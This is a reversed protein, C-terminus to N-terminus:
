EMGYFVRCAKMTMYCDLKAVIEWPAHMSLVPVGADLTDINRQAMYKAVTGGGGADVKGMECTQWCVGGRSFARRFRAVVEASADSAGSKGRAGTYKCLAVGYNLRASNRRDFVDGYTPDYAAAVDASLCISGAMCRRASVGQAACLDEILLEFAQSQIGTVGDSGIEEKDALICLSTHAPVEATHLLPYLAAYACVRDDHGYAGIMSRDLGVDRAKGAPVLTLEASLLDEEVIGYREHLMQMAALKIRQSDGDDGDLPRSGVLINLNEGTIGDGLTKKLQEQSLHVLLDTVCFVPDAPDEGISVNVVSGDTLARVGHLALPVTTWQYKKIGGYYHTKLFALESDEYLPAPKVDLRPSDIHAVTIRMGCDLPKEGIIALAVAKARNVRYVRDGPKLPRTPDMEVFGAARAAAVAADVAERETKAADIFRVYDACYAPMAARDAESLRDYGHKPAALLTQRAEKWNQEAMPIGGTLEDLLRDCAQAFADASPYDNHITRGCQAAFAADSKQASIRLRAYEESIGERAMLRAVRAAEPATVAVTEDCLRGLGSEVLAVADVAALPRGARRAGDLERAVVASVFPHVLRNLDALAAPDAFVRRGLQKRDLAGGSVVGPFRGGIAALLAADTELLRHYVADCDIVAGGRAAVRRLLTTKGCGTGGTIGLVKM